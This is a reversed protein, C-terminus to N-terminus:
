KSNRGVNSDQPIFQIMRRYSLVNGDIDVNRIEVPCGLSPSFVIERYATNADVCEITQRLLFLPGEVGVLRRPREVIREMVRFAFLCTNVEEATQPTRLHQLLDRKNLVVELQNGAALPFLKGKVSEVELVQSAWQFTSGRPVKEPTVLLHMLGTYGHWRSVSVGHPMHNIVEFTDYEPRSEIHILDTRSITGEGSVRYSIQQFKPLPREELPRVRVEEPVAPRERDSSRDAPATRCAGLFLLFLLTIPFLARM